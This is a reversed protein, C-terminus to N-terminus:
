TDVPSRGDGLVYLWLLEGDIRPCESLPPRQSETNSVTETKVQYLVCFGNLFLLGYMLETSRNM